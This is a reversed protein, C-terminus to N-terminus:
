VDDYVFSNFNPLLDYFLDIMQEISKRDTAKGGLEYAYRGIKEKIMDGKAYFEPDIKGMLRMITFLQLTSLINAPTNQGFTGEIKVNQVGEPFVSQEGDTGYEIGSIPPGIIAIKGTAADFWIQRDTDAQDITLVTETLDPAIITIATLTVIPVELFYVFEDGRGDVYFTSELETWDSGSRQVIEEYAAARLFSPINSIEFDEVFIGFFETMMDETIFDAM